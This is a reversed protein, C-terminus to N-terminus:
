IVVFWQKQVYDNDPIDVQKIYWNYWSYGCQFVIFNILILYNDYFINENLLNQVFKRVAHVRIFVNLTLFYKQVFDMAFLLRGLEKTYVIM